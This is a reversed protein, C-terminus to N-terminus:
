HKNDEKINLYNLPVPNELDPHQRILEPIQQELLKHITSSRKDCDKIIRNTWFGMGVDASSYIFEFGRFIENNGWVPTEGANISSLEGLDSDVVVGVSSNSQYVESSKIRQILDWWGFREPKSDIPSLFVLSPQPHINIMRREEPNNWLGLFSSSICFYHSEYKKFNTDIFFLQDYKKLSKKLNLQIKNVDQSASRLVKPKKKRLYADGTTVAKPTLRNGQEDSFIINNDSDININSIETDRDFDLSVIKGRQKKDKM